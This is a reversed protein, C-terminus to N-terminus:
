QAALWEVRLIQEITMKGGAEPINESSKTWCVPCKKGAYAKPKEIVKDVTADAKMIFYSLEEGSKSKMVWHFYDGEDIRVFTGEAVQEAAPKAKSKAKKEKIGRVAASDKAEASKKQDQHSVTVSKRPATAADV